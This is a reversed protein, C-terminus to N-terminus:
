GAVEAVLKELEDVLRRAAVLDGAVIAKKLKAVRGVLLLKAQLLDAAEAAQRQAEHKKNVAETTNVRVAARAAIDALSPSKPTM